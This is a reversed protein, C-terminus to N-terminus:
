RVKVGSKPSWASLVGRGNDGTPCPWRTRSTCCVFIRSRRLCSDPISAAPPRSPTTAEEGFSEIVIMGGSKMSKRLREVYAASTVPFPEYMFVIMDWQDSGYDFAEDTERIANLKVGALEANKRAMALGEDSIDFGTVDWGKLALFVSNRRQGMGVDLARGPTRDEVTSVLLANPQTSFGPTASKYINNFIIRWGDSRERMTRRIINM